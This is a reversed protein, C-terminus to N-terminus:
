FAVKARAEAVAATTTGMGQKHAARAVTRAEAGAWERARTKVGRAGSSTSGRAIVPAVPLRPRSTRGRAILLSADKQKDQPSALGV